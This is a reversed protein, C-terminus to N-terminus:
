FAVNDLGKLRLLARAEAPTALDISLEELIRRVKSVQEANGTALRGGVHLSDELGVRVSGGLIAGMTALEIQRKVAMISWVYDGGFLRDAIQKTHVLNEADAGIGGLVGFATEVFLPPKVLNRDLLYALNYLHGVDYCEFEFRTGCGEGLEKLIREIDRFTNGAPVSRSSELHQPEWDHKWQQREELMPFLGIIMTGLNFSCMEPKLSLPSVLREEIPTGQVGGTNIILVADTQEKIRPLFRRFLDPAASPKGSAPERAHLHLMAAGARAAAISESAIEDPTIPLYRSMTPTHGAGTVACTIIAKQRLATNPM